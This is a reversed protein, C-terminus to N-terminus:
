VFIVLPFGFHLQTPFHLKKEKWLLHNWKNFSFFIVLGTEGKACLVVILFKSKSAITKKEM